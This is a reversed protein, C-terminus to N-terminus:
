KQFCLWASMRGDRFVLIVSPRDTSIGLLGAVAPSRSNQSTKDGGAVIGLQGSVQIWKDNFV